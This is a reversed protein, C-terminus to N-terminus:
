FTWAKLDAEVLRGRVVVLEHLVVRKQLGGPGKGWKCKGPTHLKVAELSEWCVLPVRVLPVKPDAVILRGQVVEMERLEVDKALGWTVSSWAGDQRAKLQRKLNSLEAMTVLQVLM